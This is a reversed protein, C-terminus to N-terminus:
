EAGSGEGEDREKGGSNLAAWESRPMVEYRIQEVTRGMIRWEHTLWDATERAEHQSAYSFTTATRVGGSVKVVTWM